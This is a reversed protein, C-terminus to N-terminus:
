APPCPASAGMFAQVIAEYGAANPHLDDAMFAQGGTTFADYPNALLADHSDALEAIVDNLGLDQPDGPNCVLDLDDGLLLDDYLAENPEGGTAPNYYAMLLFIESGADEDLALTLDDLTADINARVACSDAPVDCGGLVDNGGINITLARTDTPADIAALAETLQGSTRLSAASEGGRSFDETQAIGVSTNLHEAVGPVYGSTASDGLAVYVGGPDPEECEFEATEQAERLKKAAKKVKREAKKLKKKAARLDNREKRRDAKTKALRVAAEADAVKRTKKLVRDNAKSFKKSANRLEQTATECSRQSALAPGALAAGMAIALLAILVVKRMGKDVM